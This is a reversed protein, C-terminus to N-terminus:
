DLDEEEEKERDKDAKPVVFSGGCELLAEVGADNPSRRPVELV